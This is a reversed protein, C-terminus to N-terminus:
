SHYLLILIEIVRFNVELSQHGRGCRACVLSVMPKLVAMLLQVLTRRKLTKHSTNGMLGVKRIPDTCLKLLHLIRHRKLVSKKATITSPHERCTGQQSMYVAQYSKKKTHVTSQATADLALVTRPSNTQFHM